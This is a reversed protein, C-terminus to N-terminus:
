TPELRRRVYDLVILGATTSPIIAMTNKFFGKYLWSVLQLGNNSGHRKKVYRITHVYSHWYIHSVSLLQGYPNHTSRSVTKPLALLDLIELRQYHIKQIKSIPFQICQLTSAATVGSIFTIFSQKWKKDRIQEIHNGNQDHNRWNYDFDNLLLLKMKEFISFYCGFGFMEKLLTLNFGAYCGVIGLQKWKNWGYIWLNAIGNKKKDNIYGHSLLADTHSRVYIADIPTTVIAQAIGAICGTKFYEYWTIDNVPKSPLAHVYTSYLVIGTLSNIFVPPVIIKPIIKWGYRHLAQKLIYLSSRHYFKKGRNAKNSNNNNNNIEERVYHYIDFRPPRFLKIPTRLYFSTFRYTVSRGVATIIGITSETSSSLYPDSQGQIMTDKSADCKNTINRTAENEQLNKKNLPSDCEKEENRSM